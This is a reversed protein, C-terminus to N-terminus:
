NNISKELFRVFLFLSKHFFDSIYGKPCLGDASLKDDKEYFKLGAKPNPYNVHCCNSKLAFLFRTLILAFKLFPSIIRLNSM